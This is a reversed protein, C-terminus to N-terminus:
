NLITLDLPGLKGNRPEGLEGSDALLGHGL